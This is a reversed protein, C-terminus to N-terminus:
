SPAARELSRVALLCHLTAGSVLVSEDFVARGSHNDARPPATGPDAGLFVYCGPVQQLVYSFDEAGTIPHPLRTFREDGFHDRVASEVWAAQDPDNATVPYGEAYDIEIQAGSSAASHSCLREIEERVRVRAQPSFTRVTAELRLTEPIINHQVGGNIAGVTVIVPDFVDFKRTVMTQLAGVISAGVTVPDNALHPASGHGGQGTVVMTVTDSAAMFPGPRTTFMGSPIGSARVHIGYAARVREGAADLVGEEIMLRAGGYGEEGPQFMLVVDGDLADRNRVLARAAGLLMATHLDHGCAHMAGPVQSAFPLGTEEAVPLADMDARLLVAPGRRRGRIVATVSSLARGTTVQLGLGALADLVISQTRPLSLGVEPTRHLRRRLEVLEGADAEVEDIVDALDM